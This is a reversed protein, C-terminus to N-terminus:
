NEQVHDNITVDFWKPHSKPPSPTGFEHHRKTPEPFAVPVGNCYLAPVYESSVSEHMMPSNRHVIHAELNDVGAGVMGFIIGIFDM